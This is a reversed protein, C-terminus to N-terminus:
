CPIVAGPPLKKAQNIQLLFLLGPAQDILGYDRLSGSKSTRSAMSTPWSRTHFRTTSRLVRTARERQRVNHAIAAQRALSQHSM